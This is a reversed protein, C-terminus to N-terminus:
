IIFWDEGNIDGDNIIWDYFKGDPKHLMLKSDRLIGFYDTNNWERKSIKRGAMVEKIADYFSLNSKETLIKNLDM